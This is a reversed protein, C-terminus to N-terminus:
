DNIASTTKDLCQYSTSPRCSGKGTRTEQESITKLEKGYTKTQCKGGNTKLEKRVTTVQYKGGNTGPHNHNTTNITAKGGRTHDIRDMREEIPHPSPDQQSTQNYKGQTGIESQERSGTEKPLPSQHRCAGIRLKRVETYSDRQGQVPGIRTTGRLVQLDPGRVQLDQGPPWVEPLQLVAPTQECLAENPPERIRQYIQRPTTEGGTSDQGLQNTGGTTERHEVQDDQLSRHSGQRTPTIGRDRLDTSGDFHLGEKSSEGTPPLRVRERQYEKHRDSSEKIQRGKYDFHCKRRWQNEQDATDVPVDPAAGGPSGGGHPLRGSHHRVKSM